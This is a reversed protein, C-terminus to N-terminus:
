GAQFKVIAQRRRFPHRQLHNVQRLALISGIVINDPKDANVRRQARTDDLRGIHQEGIRGPRNGGDGIGHRHKPHTRQALQHQADRQDHIVPATGALLEVIRMEPRMRQQGADGRLMQHRTHPQGDGLFNKHQSQETIDPLQRQSRCVGFIVAAQEFARLTLREILQAPMFLIFETAILHIKTLRYEGIHMERFNKLLQRTIKVAGFGALRGLTRAFPPQHM